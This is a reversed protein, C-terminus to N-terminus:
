FMSQQPDSEQKPCIVSCYDRLRRLIPAMMDRAIAAEGRSSSVKKLAEGNYNCTLIIPRGKATRGDLIEFFADETGPTWRKAFDDIVLVPVKQKERIWAMTNAPDGLAAGAEIAFKVGSILEVTRREERVLRALLVYVARTKAYGTPGVVFLGTSGFQWDFVKQYEARIHDKPLLKWDWPKRYEEPCTLNWQAIARSRYLDELAQKSRQEIEAEGAAIQEPTLNFAPFPSGPIPEKFRSIRAATQSELTKRLEAQQQLQEPSLSPLDDPSPM